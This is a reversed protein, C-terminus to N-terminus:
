SKPARLDSITSTSNSTPDSPYTRNTPNPNPNPNPNTNPNPNDKTETTGSHLFVSL